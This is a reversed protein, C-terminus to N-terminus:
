GARSASQERYTRRVEEAAERGRREVAAMDEDTIVGSEAEYSAVAEALAALKRARETEAILADNVWSSVSAARGDAVAAAAAAALDADVTVTLRVKGAKPEPSM